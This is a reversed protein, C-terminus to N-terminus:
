FLRSLKAGSRMLDNVNNQHMMVDNNLDNKNYIPHNGNSNISFDRNPNHSYEGTHFLLLQNSHNKFNKFNTIQQQKSFSSSKQFNSLNILWIKMLSISLQFCNDMKYFISKFTVFLDWNIFMVFTLFPEKKLNSKM